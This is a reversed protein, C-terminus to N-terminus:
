LVVEAPVRGRGTAPSRRWLAMGRVIRRTAGARDTGRTLGCPADGTGGQGDM